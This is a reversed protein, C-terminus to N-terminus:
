GSSRPLANAVRRDACARGEQRQRSSARFPRLHLPIAPSTARPPPLPPSASLCPAVQRYQSVYFQHAEVEVSPPSGLCTSSPFGPLDSVYRPARKSVGHNGVPRGLQRPIHFPRQRVQNKPEDTSSTAECRAIEACCSASGSPQLFNFCPAPTQPFGVSLRLSGTRWCPTM